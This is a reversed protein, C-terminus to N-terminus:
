SLLIQALIYDAFLIMVSSYVVANTSSKGVELAGGETYYGQFCSVSTIIFGFVFSKILAFFVNYEKFTSQAGTLFQEQTLIGTFSGVMLGGYIGLFMAIVILIPVMLMGAIIKPMALYGASNIGMVELADIQESVKMTGIESAISSGIRGALVLCTVTPAMELIVSDSVISGIITLSILGTVLQYATQITTVAGSFVSIIVVIVLSNVGINVMEASTRKAYIKFAEPKSFMSKLFLLYRGFHYFILM